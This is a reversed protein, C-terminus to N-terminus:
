SGSRPARSAIDPQRTGRFQTAGRAGDAQPPDAPMRWAAVALWVMWVLNLVYAALIAWTEAASFGEVGLIWGQAFFALGSMGMLAGVPRPIWATRWAAAGFLLLALGLTYDHYSRTGWELWRIAEASAYRAAKEEAPAAVWAEVAQKLAIGDVAQLVAYLALAAGACAAGLRAAWLTMGSRRELAPVLTVLGGVLIAVAVFQGLHVAKWSDSGAYSEFISPHHNADGGTHLITIGIYLLQGVLLLLAALRLSPRLKSKSLDNKPLSTTLSSEM